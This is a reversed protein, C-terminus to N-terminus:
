PTFVILAGSIIFSISNSQWNKFKSVKGGWYNLKYEFTSNESVKILINGDNVNFFYSQNADQCIGNVRFKSLQSFPLWDNKNLKYAGRNTGLWLELNKDEYFCFIEVKTLSYEFKTAIKNENLSVKILKNGGTLSYIWVDNNHDVFFKEIYLNNINLDQIGIKKWTNKEKIYLEKGDNIFLNNNKIEMSLIPNEGFFIDRKWSKGDFVYLGKGTSAWIKGDNTEQIETIIPILSPHIPSEYKLEYYKWINQEKCSLRTNFSGLWLKNQSDLMYSQLSSGQIDDDFYSTWKENYLSHLGDVAGIWFKGNKDSAIQGSSYTLSYGNAKNYYKYEKSENWRILGNKRLLWIDGWKDSTIGYISSSIGAYKHVKFTKGDWQGVDSSLSVWIDGTKPHEYANTTEFTNPYYNWKDNEKFYLGNNLGCWYRGDKHQKFFVLQGKDSALTDQKQIGNETYQLIRKNKKTYSVWLNGSKDFALLSYYIKDTLPSEWSSGNYKRIKGNSLCVWLDGNKDFDMFEVKQPRDAIIPFEKIKIGNIDRIVLGNETGIYILNDKILIKTVSNQSTLITMNEQSNQGFNKAISCFFIILYSFFIKMTIKFSNYSWNNLM